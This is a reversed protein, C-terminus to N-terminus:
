KIVGTHHVNGNMGYDAVAKGATIVAEVKQEYVILDLPKVDKVANLEDIAKQFTQVLQLLEPKM